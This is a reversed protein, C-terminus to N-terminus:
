SASPPQELRARMFLPLTEWICRVEILKSWLSEVEDVRLVCMRMMKLTEVDREPDYGVRKYLARLVARVDAVQADYTGPSGEAGARMLLWLVRCRRTRDEVEDAALPAYEEQLVQLEHALLQSLTRLWATGSLTVSVLKDKLPEPM